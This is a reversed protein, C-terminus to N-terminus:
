WISRAYAARTVSCEGPGDTPRDTQRDTQGCLINHCFPQTSGSAMQHPHNISLFPIVIIQRPIWGIVVVNFLNDQWWRQDPKWVDANLVPARHEM